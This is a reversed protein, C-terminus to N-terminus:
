KPYYEIKFLLKDETLIYNTMQEARYCNGLACKEAGIGKEAKINVEQVKNLGSFINERNSVDSLYFVLLALICVALIGIVLITVPLDGKKDM